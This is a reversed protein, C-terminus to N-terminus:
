EVDGGAGDWRGEKISRMVDDGILAARTVSNNKWWAWVASVITWATSVLMQITDDAIPIPSIGFIALVQNVLALALCITRILTEKTM